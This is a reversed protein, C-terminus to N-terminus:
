SKRVYGSGLEVRQKFEDLLTGWGGPAQYGQVARGIGNKAISKPQHRPAV